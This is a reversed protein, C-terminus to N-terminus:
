LGQMDIYARVRKKSGVRYMGVSVMSIEIEDGVVLGKFRSFIVGEKTVCGSGSIFRQIKVYRRVVIHPKGFYFNSDVLSISRGMQIAREYKERNSEFKEKLKFNDAHCFISGMGMILILINLIKNM